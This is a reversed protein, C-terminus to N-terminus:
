TSGLRSIELVAEARRFGYKRKFLSALHREIFVKPLVHISRNSSVRDVKDLDNGMASM